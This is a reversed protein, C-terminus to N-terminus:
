KKGAPKKNKTTTTKSAPIPAVPVAKAVQPKIKFPIPLMYYMPVNQGGQKAPTWKPMKSIIRLAEADTTPSLSKVIKPMIAKGNRDVVFKIYVKGQISDKLADKPYILVSDIFSYLQRKGGPYEAPVEAISYISDKEIVENSNQAWCNFSVFTALLFLIKKM